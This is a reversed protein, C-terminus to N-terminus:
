LLLLHVGFGGKIKHFKNGKQATGHWQLLGDGQPKMMSIVIQRHRYAKDFTLILLQQCIHKPVWRGM